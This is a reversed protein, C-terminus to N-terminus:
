RTSVIRGKAGTLKEVQTLVPQLEQQTKGSGAYVRVMEKGNITVKETFASIRGAQLKKVVNQANSQQSFVGVQITYAGSPKGSAAPAAAAASQRPATKQASQVPAPAPKAPARLIETDPRASPQPEASPQASKAATLIETQDASAAPASSAPAPSAPRPAADPSPATLPPPNDKLDDEPALLTAYDTEASSLLGGNEDTLAGHEDVAIIDENVQAPTQPQDKLLVPLVLLILSVIILFGVIRNRLKSTVAM